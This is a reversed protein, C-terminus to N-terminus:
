ISVLSTGVFATGVKEYPVTLWIFRISMSTLSGLLPFVTEIEVSNWPQSIVAFKKDLCIHILDGFHRLCSMVDYVELFNYSVILDPNYHLMQFAM